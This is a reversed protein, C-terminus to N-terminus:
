RSDEAQGRCGLRKAEALFKIALDEDRPNKMKSAGDTKSHKEVRRGLSLSTDNSVTTTCPAPSAQNIAAIM